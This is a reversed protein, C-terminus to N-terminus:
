LNTMIIILAVSGGIGQIVRGAILTDMNQARACVVSGTLSSNGMSLYIKRVCYISKGYISALCIIIIFIRLNVMRYITSSVEM